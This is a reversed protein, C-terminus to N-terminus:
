SPTSRCRCRIPQHRQLHHHRKLNAPADYNIPTYEFRFKHKTAPGSCSGCSSSPARDRDRSGLRLRDQVRHDRAIRQHHRDRADPEVPLRRDRRSLERRDRSESTARQAADQADARAPSAWACSSYLPSPQACSTERGSETTLAARLLAAFGAPFPRGRPYCSRRCEAQEIAWGSRVSRRANGMIYAPKGHRSAAARDLSRSRRM